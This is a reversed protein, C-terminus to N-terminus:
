IIIKKSPLFLIIIRLTLVALSFWFTIQGMLRKIVLNGDVQEMLFFHLFAFALALYSTTQIAKWTKPSLNELVKKASTLTVLSLIGLALLGSLIGGYKPNSTDIFKLINFKYFYVLVLSVHAFAILFSLIGWVKRHAKLFDLAPFIRSLPGIALTLGLLSISLLGTTKIMESPTIKGFNYFQLYLLFLLIPVGFDILRHVINKNGSYHYPHATKKNPM